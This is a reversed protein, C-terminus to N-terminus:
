NSEKQAELKEQEKQLDLKDYGDLLLENEGSYINIKYINSFPDVVLIEFDNLWSINDVIYMQSVQHRDSGDINAVFLTYNSNDSSSMYAVKQNNPSIKPNIDKLDDKPTIRKLNTNNVNTYYLDYNMESETSSLKQSFIIFKKNSSYDMSNIKHGNTTIKINDTKDKFNKLLYIVDNGNMLENQQPSIAVLCENENRGWDYFIFSGPMPLDIKEKKNADFTEGIFLEAKNPDSIESFLYKYGSSSFVPTNEFIYYGNPRTQTSSDLSIAFKRFVNNGLDEYRYIDSNIAYYISNLSNNYKAIPININNNNYGLDNYGSIKSNIHKSVRTEQKTELDFRYVEWEGTRNSSYIFYKDNISNINKIEWSSILKPIHITIDKYITDFKKGKDVFEIRYKGDPLINLDIYSILYPVSYTQGIVKDIKINNTTSYEITIIGNKCKIDEISYQIQFHKPIIILQPNTNKITLKEYIEPYEKIEESTSLILKYDELLTPFNKNTYLMDLTNWYFQKEEIEVKAYQGYDIESEKKEEIPTEVTNKNGCSCLCLIFISIFFMFFIKKNM